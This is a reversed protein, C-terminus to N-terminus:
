PTIVCSISRIDAQGRLLKFRILASHVHDGDSHTISVECRNSECRGRIRNSGTDLDGLQMALLDKMRANGKQKYDGDCSSARPVFGNSAALLAAVAVRTADPSLNPDNAGAVNAATCVSTNLAATLLLARRLAANNPARSM